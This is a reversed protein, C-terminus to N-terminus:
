KTGLVYISQFDRIKMDLQEDYKRLRVNKFCVKGLIFVINEEDFMYQHHGEMYAMYNVFDIKSNYNYAPEHRCFLGPDFGSPNQYAELYIRANPVAASFIGGPKLVRLCENLFNHLENYSFHELLHSSYIMDVCNDPFPLPHTLDLTLDCNENVDAYTWGPVGRNEGAGLELMIPISSKLLAEIKRRNKESIQENRRAQDQWQLFLVLLEKLRTPLMKKITEKVILMALV